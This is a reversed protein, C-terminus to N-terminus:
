SATGAAARRMLERARRARYSPDAVFAPASEDSEVGHSRMSRSGGLVPPGAGVRLPVVHNTRLAASRVASGIRLGVRQDVRGDPPAHDPAGSLDPPGIFFVTDSPITPTPGFKSEYYVSRPFMAYLGGSVRMLRGDPTRYIRNFGVPLQLSVQMQRLSRAMPGDDSFYPEVVEVSPARFYHHPSSRLAAEVGPDPNVQGTAAPALALAGLLAALRRLLHLPHPRRPTVLRRRHTKM